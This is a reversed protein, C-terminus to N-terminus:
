KGHAPAFTAAVAEIRIAGGQQLARAAAALTAGTTLVDDVLWVTGSLPWGRWAFAGELNSRRARAGQGVQPPTERVRVLGGLVQAGPVLAGLARAAVQAQNYGRERHRRRPLPVPVIAAPPGFALLGPLVREAAVSGLLHMARACGRYKARWVIGRAPPAHPLAARSAGYPEARPPPLPLADLREVCVPCLIDQGPADCGACRRPAVSDALRNALDIIVM